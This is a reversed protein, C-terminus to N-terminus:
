SNVEVLTHVNSPKVGLIRGAKTTTLAGSELMRAVFGIMRSGTRHRRVVYYNPGGDSARNRASQLSVQNRWLERFRNRLQVWHDRSIAEHRFLRYAVMSGSLNRESAFEGIRQTLTALDLGESLVLSRLDAIPLLLRSAVDNCFREVVLNSWAGSVGTQGLWLHVLEHLLTFSWASRADHDNIVIFPAFQDSLAIGRFTEVEIATHHSGLDGVLLVFVGIDEVATRLRSFAADPSPDSRFASLDFNLLERTRDALSAVGDRIHAAGVFTALAPEEEEEMLSRIMSQRARVDRMLADLIAEDQASQDGPLTRFDDVRSSTRPPSPLYFVLLPRRYQKAMKALLSRSPESQGLELAELRAPDPVGETSRIGLKRSAEVRDLGTTERAWKLIEGNVRPM